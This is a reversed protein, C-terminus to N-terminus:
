LQLKEDGDTDVARNIGRRAVLQSTLPLVDNIYVAYPRDDPGLRDDSVICILPFGWKDTMVVERVVGQSTTNGSNFMVQDGVDVSLDPRHMPWVAAKLVRIRQDSDRIRLDLFGDEDPEPNEVVMDGRFPAPPQNRIYFWMRVVDGRVLPDKPTRRSDCNGDLNLINFNRLSDDM